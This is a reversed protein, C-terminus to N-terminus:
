GRGGARARGRPRGLDAGLVETLLLGEVFAARSRRPVAVGRPQGPRRQRRSKRGLESLALLRPEHDADPQRSRLIIFAPLLDEAKVPINAGSEVARATRLQRRIGPRLPHLAWLELLDRGDLSPIRTRVIQHLMGVTARAMPEAPVPIRQLGGLDINVVESGPHWDEDGPWGAEMDFAKVGAALVERRVSYPMSVAGADGGVNLKVTDRGRQREVLARLNAFGPGFLALGLADAFVDRSWTASLVPSREIFEEITSANFEGGGAAREVAGNLAAPLDELEALAAAAVEDVWDLLSLPDRLGEGRRRMRDGLAADWATGAFLSDLVAAVGAPVIRQV